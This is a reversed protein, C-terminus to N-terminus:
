THLLEQAWGGDGPEAFGSLCSGASWIRLFATPSFRLRYFFLEVLRQLCRENVM